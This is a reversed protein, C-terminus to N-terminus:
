KSQFPTYDKGKKISEKRSKRGDESRCFMLVGVLEYKKRRSVCVFTSGGSRPNSQNSAKLAGAIKVETVKQGENYGGIKLGKNQNSSM